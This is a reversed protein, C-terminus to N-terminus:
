HYKPGYTAEWYRESENLMDQFSINKCSSVSELMSLEFGFDEREM